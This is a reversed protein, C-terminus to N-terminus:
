LTLAVSGAPVVLRVPKKFQDLGVKEFKLEKEDRKKLDKIASIGPGVNRGGMIYGHEGECHAM